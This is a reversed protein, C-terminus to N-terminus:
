FISILQSGHAPLSASYQGSVFGLFKHSWLDHALHRGTLGLDSWNVTVTAATDALNFLAVVYPGHNGGYRVRWVQQPTAQSIPTAPRGLQDVTLVEPNTLLQLGYSDLKTIDDGTYLPASSIAWFTAYTQREVDTLGDMSGNGIDLSDFDNWGGPGAFQAWAAANTFRATVKSWSTLSGPCRSYCEIDGTTRWGNAFQRWFTAFQIDESSSLELWIRYPRLAQAYAQVDARTDFGPVASGPAIGDLKLFNVGWSHLESALSNIYQQACPKTYDIKYTNKFHNGFALPQVTIDNAHCSTGLIPTNQQVALLPIGPVLYLGFKQGNHHIYAGLAALDPFRQTDPTWRGYADVAFAGGAAQLYWEADINIYSYGFRQLKQHMADSQVKIDAATLWSKGYGTVHAGTLSWSSWGMYPTFALGNNAAYAVPANSAQLGLGVLSTVLLLTLLVLSRRWHLGRRKRSM